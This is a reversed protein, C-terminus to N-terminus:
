GRVEDRLGYRPGVPSGDLHVTAHGNCVPCTKSTPGNSDWVSGDPCAPCPREGKPRYDLDDTLSEPATM